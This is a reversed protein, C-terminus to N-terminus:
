RRARRCTLALGALGTVILMWTAPEPSVIAQATVTYTADRFGRVQGFGGLMDYQVRGRQEMPRPEQTVLTGFWTFPEGRLGDVMSAFFSYEPNLIATTAVPVTSVYSYNLTFLRTGPSVLAGLQFPAGTVQTTISGVTVTPRTFGSAVVRQAAAPTYTITFTSTATVLRLSSGSSTCTTGPAFGPTGCTFTGLAQIDHDYAWGGRPDPVWGQAPLAAAAVTLAALVRPTRRMIRHTISM